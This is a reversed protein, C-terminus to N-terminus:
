CYRDILSKCSQARRDAYDGKEVSLKTYENFLKKWQAEHPDKKEEMFM